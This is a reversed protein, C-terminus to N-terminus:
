TIDRWCNKDGFRNKRRTHINKNAIEVLLKLM